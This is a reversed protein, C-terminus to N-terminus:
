PTLLWFGATEFTAPRCRQTRRTGSRDHEILAMLGDHETRCAPCMALHVAVGPFQAAAAQAGLETEVYRELV